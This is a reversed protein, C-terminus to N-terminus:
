GQYGFPLMNSVLTKRGTILENLAQLRMQQMALEAMTYQLHESFRNVIERCDLSLTQPCSESDIVSRFHQSLTTLIKSDAKLVLTAESIKEQLFETYRLQTFSYDESPDPLLGEDRKRSSEVQESRGLDQARKILSSLFAPSPLGPSIQSNSTSARSITGPAPQRTFVPATLLQRLAKQVLEELDNIYWRWNEGAWDAFQQHMILGSRFGDKITQFSSCIPPQGPELSRAIKQRMSRDADKYGEAKVVIWISQNSCFDFSHFVTMPKISWKLEPHTESAEVGRLSYALQITKGSRDLEPIQMSEYGPALHNEAIFSAYQFDQARQCQGFSYLLELCRPSM